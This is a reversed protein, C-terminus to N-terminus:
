CPQIGQQLRYLLNMKKATWSRSAACMGQRKAGEEMKLTVGELRQETMREEKESELCGGM